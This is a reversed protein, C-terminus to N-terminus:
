SKIANIIPLLKETPYRFPYMKKGFQTIVGVWRSDGGYLVHHNDIDGVREWLTDDNTIPTHGVIVPTEPKLDM